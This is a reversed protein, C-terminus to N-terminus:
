VPYTVESRPGRSAAYAFGRKWAEVLADAQNHNMRERIWCDDAPVSYGLFNYGDEGSAQAVSILNM